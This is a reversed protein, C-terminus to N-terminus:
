LRASSSSRSFTTATKISSGIKRKKFLMRKERPRTSLAYEQFCQVADELVALMLREEGDRVTRKQQKEFKDADTPETAVWGDTILGFDQAYTYRRRLMTKTEPGNPEPKSPSAQTPYEPLDRQQIIKSGPPPKKNSITLKGDPDHYIFYDEAQSPGFPALGLFLVALVAGFSIIKM